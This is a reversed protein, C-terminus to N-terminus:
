HLAIFAVIPLSHSSYRTTVEAEVALRQEHSLQEWAPNTLAESLLLPEASSAQHLFESISIPQSSPGFLSDFSRSMEGSMIVRIYRLWEIM